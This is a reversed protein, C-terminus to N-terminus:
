LTVSNRRLRPEAFSIKGFINDERTTAVGLGTHADTSRILGFKYPNIGLKEELLMGVKLAERAYEGAFMDPAKAQTEVM